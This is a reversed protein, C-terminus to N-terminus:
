HNVYKVKAHHKHHEAVEGKEVNFGNTPCLLLKFVRGGPIGQGAQEVTTMHTVNNIAQHFTDFFVVMRETHRQDIQISKFHDIVKLAM